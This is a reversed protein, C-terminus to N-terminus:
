IITELLFEGFNHRPQYGFRKEIKETSYVRDISTPLSWGRAAYVADVDPFYKRVVTAPQNKLDQLDSPQFPSHASLNFIDFSNTMQELALLHAAAGDRVDLGRYLRYNAITNIPEDWFRSIRLVITKIGEKEAFDACLNEATQKSIDYIDRPIPTVMEDIWVARSPNVMANGYISTTSTFVVKHIGQQRCANLLNLTGTVNTDIFDQRPYGLDAHKGHLAATHIVADMRHCVALVKDRQRLDVCEDTTPSTALDIGWVSHGQQKLQSVIERGLLGSSGTVLITNMKQVDIREPMM